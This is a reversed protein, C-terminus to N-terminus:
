GNRRRRRWQGRDHRHFGAVALALQALTEALGCVEQLQRDPPDYRAEDAHLRARARASKAAQEEREAADLRSALEAVLGTGVYERVPRGAVWRSRYYYRGSADWAM